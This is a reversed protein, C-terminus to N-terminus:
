GSGEVRAGAKAPPEQEPNRGVPTTSRAVPKGIPIWMSAGCIGCAFDALGSCNTSRLKKFSTSFSPNKLSIAFRYGAFYGARM